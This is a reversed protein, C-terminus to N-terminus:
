EQQCGRNWYAAVLCSKKALSREKQLFSRINRAAAQECGVFVFVDDSDSWDARRLAAEVLRTTGPVAGDRHLWVTELRAASALPQEEAANAVEIFATAQVTAPLGEAIRAIAPLATEDGALVYCRAKAIEGGGPGMLGVRDGPAATSAWHSGPAAEDGHLVIDIDVERCAHDIRRITYVRATLEDEGKPWLTRGDPAAKPWRPERGAPPILVRVHLGGTEFHAVDEGTLTVRRMLPTVNCVRRVTMERFFPIRLEDSGDGSWTFAAVEEGALLFVHESVSMKVVYLATDNTGGAEIRLAGTEPVLTAYGFETEIRGGHETMTVAGHEAFHTCLGHLVGHPDNLAVRTSATRTDAM